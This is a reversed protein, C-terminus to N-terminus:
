PFVISKFIEKTIKQISAIKHKDCPIIEHDKISYKLFDIVDDSVTLYGLYHIIKIEFQCQLIILNKSTELAKLTNGLIDFLEKANDDGKQCLKITTQLFNLALRIREYETRIEQFGYLLQAEQLLFIEVSDKENYIFSIYNIPELVGGSFRKKSKLASKAIVDIKEGKESLITVILDSESYKLTKLIIGKQNKLM